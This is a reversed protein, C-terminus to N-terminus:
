ATKEPDEAAGLNARSGNDEEDTYDAEEIQNIENREEEEIEAKREEELVQELTKGEPLIVVGGKIEQKEKFTIQIEPNKFGFKNVMTFLYVKYCFKEEFYKRAAALWYGAEKCKAIEVADNFEPFNKEWSFITSLSVRIKGAFEEITKGEEAYDLLMECYEPKYNTKYTRSRIKSHTIVYGDADLTNDDKLIKKLEAQFAKQVEAQFDKQLEKQVEKKIRRNRSM